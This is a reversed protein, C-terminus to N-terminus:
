FFPFGNEFVFLQLNQIKLVKEIKKEKLIELEQFNDFEQNENWIPAFENFFTQNSVIALVERAEKMELLNSYWDPFENEEVTMLIELTEIASPTDIKITEKSM